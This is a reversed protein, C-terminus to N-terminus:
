THAGEGTRARGHPSVQNGGPGNGTSQDVGRTFPNKNPIWWSGPVKARHRFSGVFAREARGVYEGSAPRREAGCAVRPQGGRAARVQLPV